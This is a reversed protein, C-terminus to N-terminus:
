RSGYPSLNFPEDKKISLLRKAIVLAEDENEAYFLHHSSVDSCQYNREQLPQATEIVTKKAKNIKGM